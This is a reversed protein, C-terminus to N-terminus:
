NSSAIDKAPLIIINHEADKTEEVDLKEGMTDRVIEFAKTNGKIAEDYMSIMMATKNTMEEEQIGLSQLKRKIEPMTVKGSAFSNFMERFTKQQRKKEQAKKGGMSAIERQRSASIENFGHGILNQENAM